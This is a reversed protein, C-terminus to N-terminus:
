WGLNRGRLERQALENGLKAAKRYWKLAETIDKAVGRGNDYMLALAVMGYTNGREAAKRYWRAAEAEDKALGRGDEYVSGLAIVLYLHKKKMM